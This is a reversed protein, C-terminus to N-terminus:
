APLCRFIRSSCTSRAFRMANSKKVGGSHGMIPSAGTFNCLKGRMPPLQCPASACWAYGTLIGVHRFVSAGVNGAGGVEEGNSSVTTLHRHHHTFVGTFETGIAFQSITLIM